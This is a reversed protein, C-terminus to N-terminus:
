SFRRPVVQSHKIAHSTMNNHLCVDNRLLISSFEKSDWMYLCRTKSSCQYVVTFFVAVRGLLYFSEDLYCSFLKRLCIFMHLFLLLCFYWGFNLM